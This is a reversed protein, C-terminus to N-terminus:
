ERAEFSPKGDEGLVLKADFKTGDKKTFGKILKTKGKTLLDTKDADSLTKGSITDWVTVKCGTKWNSCGWGVKGVTIAGGCKPCKLGTDWSRGIKGDPEITLFAGYTEDSDKKKFGKMYKSKKNELLEIIDKDTIKVGAINYGIAFKCAEPDDKKYASCAWGWSYKNLPKGCKPCTYDTERDSKVIEKAEANQIEEIWKKTTEEMDKIFSSLDDEGKEIKTLRQEWEATLKASKIDNLPLIDILKMGTESPVIRITKGSKERTAYKRLIVAEIISGRTAATGIGGDKTSALAAELEEDNLNTGCTSMAAILTADTYREPPSTKGEKLNYEGSVEDDKKVAPMTEEKDNRVLGKVNLWQKDTIVIGDSKFKEGEVTTIIKTKEGAVPKFIIRILSRAILDYIKQQKDTMNEPKVKTPIIAFHSEVEATNFHRKTYNREKAPVMDIYSKYEESYESLMALVEDVTSQMDSTLYQSSTRPYTIYGAMYLSQAIDLTEKGSFGYAKNADVSLTTISYLLPVDRKYVSKTYETIVGKKGNIKALLADAEAKEAIQATTHKGKYTEGSETTFMAEAYWFPHSVFSQIAKEREVIMSLVPTQVRGISLVGQGNGYKLSMLASLNAGVVWDAIGRGRGAMEIGKVDKADLLHDLAYLLSDEEQSDIKLRKYPKTCRLIEYVYAFITEGERDDDTANIIYECKAFIDRVINLQRVAYPDPEGTPKRTTRDVGERIKIEYNEPFFPMPMKSWQAYEPNYDKAQKLGCMHGQGWTICYDKGNYSTEIYGKRKMEQELKTQLKAINKMTVTTGDYDFGGYAAALKVGVDFKEAYIAIM